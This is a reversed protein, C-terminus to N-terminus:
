GCRSNGAIGSRSLGLSSFLFAFPWLGGDATFESHCVVSSPGNTQINEVAVMAAVRPLSGAKNTGNLNWAGTWEFCLQREGDSFDPELSGIVFVLVTPGPGSIGTTSVEFVGQNEARFPGTSDEDIELSIVGRWAAPRLKSCRDL